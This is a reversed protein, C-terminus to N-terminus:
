QVEPLVKRETLIQDTHNERWKQVAGFVGTCAILVALLGMGWILEKRIRYYKGNKM